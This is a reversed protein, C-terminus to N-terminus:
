DALATILNPMFWPHIPDAQIVLEAGRNADDYRQAAIVVAPLATPLEIQTLRALAGGREGLDNVVAQRLGRLAAFVDDAGTNGAVRAEADLPAVVAARTAAADDASSPAYSASVRAMATVAARRYLAGLATGAPTAAASAIPAFGTLGALIRLGDAPDAASAQLAAVHAQVASAVDAATSGVGLKGITTTVVGAAAGVQQRLSAGTSILDPISTAGAFPSVLGSLFGSNRGNFYRGFDAGGLQSVTGYLSTADRALSQAQDIWSGATTAMATAAGLGQELPGAVKSVFDGLGAADALGAAKGVLDGLAALVAPFVQAGGQVFTFELEAYGGEEARERIQLDILDVTLRGRTPHVLVGAGTAEAADEMRKIQSNVDGGGYKASNSILFGQLSFRRPLKGQDELWVTDRYPYDHEVKRRGYRGTAADLGFPVGRWSAPRLNDAFAM